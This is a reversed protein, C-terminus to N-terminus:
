KKQKTVQSAYEEMLAYLSDMDGLLAVTEIHGSGYEKNFFEEATGTEEKPQARQKICHEVFEKLEEGTFTQSILQGVQDILEGHYSTHLRCFEEDTLEEATQKM